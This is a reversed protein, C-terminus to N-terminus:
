PRHARRQRLLEFALLTGAMAVNLSEVRGAMPITILRDLRDQIQAGLGHAENGLVLAVAGTLDTRDYAPADRVVTGVSTLGSGSLAALVTEADAGVGIPVRFVSGASSRVTKPSTVEVSDALLVADAGAAEATRLLTGVNGPDRVEILVLVFPDVRALALALARDVSLDPLPAIAAMGQPTATDVAGVLAGQAVDYVMVQSDRLAEVLAPAVDPEVFVDCLEVGADLAEGVLM